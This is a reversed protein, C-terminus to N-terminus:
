TSVRERAAAAATPGSRRRPAGWRPGYAGDVGLRALEAALAETGVRPAIVRRDIAHTVSVIARVMARDVPSRSAERVLEPDLVVYTVPLQQLYKFSTFHRGVGAAALSVHRPSLTAAWQRATRFQSTLVSEPIEVVLRAAAAPHEEVLRRAQELAPPDALTGASLSLLVPPHGLDELLELARGLLSLDVRTLLGMREATPAFVGPAAFVGDDDALRPVAIEAEVHGDDLDVVPQLRLELRLDRLADGIRDHWAAAPSPRTRSRTGSPPTTAPPAVALQNRGANKAAYLAADALGVVAGVPHGPRIAALGASVTVPVAGASTRVPRAGAARQVREAIRRALAPSVDELVIGFEDGGLRALLDGPRLAHALREAVATLVDDGALHGFRDNVQKFHDIDVLLVAGDWEREARGILREVTADFSARTLLGTLDDHSAMYELRETERHQETVDHLIAVVHTIRDSAYSVPSFCWEAVFEDDGSSEVSRWRAPRGALLETWLHEAPVGSTSPGVALSQARLGDDLRLLRRYVANGYVVEAQGRATVTAIVVAEPAEDLISRLLGDDMGATM